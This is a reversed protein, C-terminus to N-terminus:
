QNSVWKSKPTSGAPRQFMSATATPEPQPPPPPPPPPTGVSASSSGRRSDPVFCSNLDGLSNDLDPPHLRVGGGGDFGEDLHTFIPDRVVAKSTMKRLMPAPPSGPGGPSASSALKLGASRAEDAVSRLFRGDDFMTRANAQTANMVVNAVSLKQSSQSQRQSAMQWASRAAANEGPKLVPAARSPAKRAPVAGGASNPDPQQPSADAGPPAPAVANSGHPPLLRQHQGTAVREQIRRLREASITAAMPARLSLAAQSVSGRMGGDAQQQGGQSALSSTSASSLLSRSSGPAPRSPLGALQQQQLMAQQQQMQELQQQEASSVATLTPRGSPSRTISPLPALNTILNPQVVQDWPSRSSFGPREASIGDTLLQNLGMRRPPGQPEPLAGPHQGGGPVRWAAAETEDDGDGGGPTRFAGDGPTGSRSRKGAETEDKVEHPQVRAVKPPKDGSRRQKIRRYCVWLFILVAVLALATAIGLGFSSGLFGVVEQILEPPSPMPSPPPTPTPSSPPPPNPPSPPEAVVPTSIVPNVNPLRLALQANLTTGSAFADDVSSSAPDGLSSVTTSASLEANAVSTVNVGIANLGSNVMDRVPTSANTSAGLNYQRDVDLSVTSLRRQDHLIRFRRAANITVTCTGDMGDCAARQAGNVLTVRDAGVNMDLTGVDVDMSTRETITTTVVTTGRDAAPVQEEASAQVAAAFAVPDIAALDEGSPAITFSVAFSRPPFM